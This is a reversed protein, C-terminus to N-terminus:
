LIKESNTISFDLNAYKRVLLLERKVQKWVNVQERKNQRRACNVMCAANKIRETLSEDLTM